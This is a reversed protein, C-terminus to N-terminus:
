RPQLNEVVELKGYGHIWVKTPLGVCVVLGIKMEFNYHCVSFVVFVTNETSEIEGQGSSFFISLSTSL